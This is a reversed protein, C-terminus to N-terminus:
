IRTEFGILSYRWILKEVTAHLSIWVNWVRYPLIKLDVWQETFFSGGRTEFGILSYRWISDMGELIEDEFKNWVRYPLIKLNEILPLRLPEDVNWVRYPLIKLHHTHRHKLFIYLDLNWVRYPLIKLYM